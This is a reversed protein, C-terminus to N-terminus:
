RERLAPEIWEVGAAAFVDREDDAAIVRSTPAALAQVGRHPNFHRGVAHCRQAFWVNFMASGTRALLLVGFNGPAVERPTDFLDAPAVEGSHAFWLDLQFGNPMQFVVYQEGKKMLHCKLACRDVIRQVHAACRPLLVLDIDGCDPRKRRISGAVEIRECWPALEDRVREALRAAQALPLRQDTSTM